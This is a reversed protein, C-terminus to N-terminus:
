GLTWATNVKFNPEAPFSGIRQQLEVKAMQQAYYAGESAEFAEEPTSPYERKMDELQTDSKKVYWARQAANLTIDHTEELQDFYRKFNEEIVVGEPDLQYEPARHWPFFNFKFDLQTLPSGM